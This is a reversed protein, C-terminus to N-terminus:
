SSGATFSDRSKAVSSARRLMWCYKRRYESPTCGNYRRFTRGFNTIDRFGVRAMVQNIGLETDRLITAAVRIRLRTLYAMVSLGTAQHFGKTLTTRNTHFTRTLDALTIKQEYHTHLHMIVDGMTRPADALPPWGELDPDSYVHSVMILLELLYSRSLCPWNDEHQVRITDGITKMIKGMRREGAPGLSAPILGEPTRHIFPTFWFLDQRDSIPLDGVKGRVIEFDFISNVVSPHFYLAQAHLGRSQELVPQETENLCFLVPAIFAGRWAGVRLIGSGDEVLILRFRSGFGVDQRFDERPNYAMPMRYGPHRIPDEAFMTILPHMINLRRRLLRQHFIIVIRRDTKQLAPM